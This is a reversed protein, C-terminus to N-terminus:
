WAKKQVSEKNSDWYYDPGWDISGGVKNRESQESCGSLFLTSCALIVMAMIITFIKKM